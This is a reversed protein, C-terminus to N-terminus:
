RVAYWVFYDTVIRVLRLEGAEYLTRRGERQCSAVVLSVPSDGSSWRAGSLVADCADSVDTATTYPDGGSTEQTVADVQVRARYLNDGGRLHYTRPDDVLAVRVAPPTFRQPIVLQYVRTGVLAIVGAAAKLRELVAQEVTM